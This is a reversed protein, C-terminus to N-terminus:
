RLVGGVLPSSGLLGHCTWGPLGPVWGPRGNRGAVGSVVNSTAPVRVPDGPRRAKGGAGGGRRAAGHNRLTGHRNWVQVGTYRPNELIGAVTRTIWAQESRHSNRERDAGSPCPVERENLERAIGAVSRGAARQQFIWRVWPATAPDPELRHLRRGWRAHIRNPHPGADVLRYGYPPRGGLFRGQTCVQARMAALVRHRTRLVEQRSQSGLLLLLMLAQHTPDDPDVPGGAEPLWLQMGQESLFALVTRIQDGYFAREYEGVVVADFGRDPRRAEDLLAAARRRKPWSWRRSCGEDFFEAVIVGRGAITEEAVELQWAMSTEQDQFEPTSMRGYFAFRVLGEDLGSGRTRQGRRGCGVRGAAGGM